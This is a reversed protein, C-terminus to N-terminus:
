NYTRYIRGTKNKMDIHAKASEFHMSYCPVYNTVFSGTGGLVIFVKMKAHVHVRTGPDCSLYIKFHAIVPEVYIHVDKSFAGALTLTVSPTATDVKGDMDLPAYLNITQLASMENGSSGLAIETFESLRLNIKELYPAKQIAFNGSRCNCLKRFDILKDKYVPLDIEYGYHFSRSYGFMDEKPSVRCYAYCQDKSPLNPKLMEPFKLTELNKLGALHLCEVYDPCVVNRVASRDLYFASMNKTGIITDVGDLGGDDCFIRIVDPIYAIKSHIIPNEMYLSDDVRNVHVAPKGTKTTIDSLMPYLDKATSTGCNVSLTRALLACGNESVNGVKMKKSMMLKQVVSFSALRYNGYADVVVVMVPERYNGHEPMLSRVYRNSGKGVSEYFLAGSHREQKSTIDDAIFYNSIGIVQYVENSLVGDSFTALSALGSFFQRKAINQLEPYNSFESPPIDVVSEFVFNEALSSSTIELLNNYDEFEWAQANNDGLTAMHMYLSVDECSIRRNALGMEQAVHYFRSGAFGYTANDLTAKKNVIDFQFFRIAEVAGSRSCIAAIPIFM